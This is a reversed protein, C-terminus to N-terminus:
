SDPWAAELTEVLREIDREAANLTLSVRELITRRHGDTKYIKTVNEFRIM